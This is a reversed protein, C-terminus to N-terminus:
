TCQTKGTKRWEREHVFVLGIQMLGNRHIQTHTKQRHERLRFADFINLKDHLQWLVILSADETHPIFHHSHHMLRLRIDWGTPTIKAQFSVFNIWIWSFSRTMLVDHCVNRDNIYRCPVDARQRQTHEWQQRWNKRHTNLIWQVLDNFEDYEWWAHLRRNLFWDIRDSLWYYICM